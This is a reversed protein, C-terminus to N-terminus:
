RSLGSLDVQQLWGAGAYQYAVGVGIMRQGANALVFCQGLVVNIQPVWLRVSDAVDSLCLHIISPTIPEFLRKPLNCGYTPNMEDDGVFTSLLNYLEGGIVDNDTALIPSSLVGYFASVDSM